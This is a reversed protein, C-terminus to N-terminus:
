NPLQSQPQPSSFDKELIHSKCTQTNNSRTAKKGWKKWLRVWVILSTKGQERDAQLSCVAVNFLHSDKTCRRFMGPSYVCARDGERQRSSLGNIVTVTQTSVAKKIAAVNFYLQLWFFLWNRLNQIMRCFAASVGQFLSSTLSRPTINRSVWSSSPLELHVVSVTPTKCASHM